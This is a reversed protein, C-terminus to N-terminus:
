STAAGFDLREIFKIFTKVKSPLYRKQPYVIYLPRRQTKWESLVPVLTGDEIQSKILLDLTYIIGGGRQAANILAMSSNFNPTGTPIHTVTKNGKSFIWEVIKGNRPAFFGMCNKDKLDSPHSPTGHQALYGPSACAIYRTNCLKRSILNSDKLDGLQLALDIGGEVLRTPGPDLLVVIKIDPNEESFQKLAPVIFLHGLGAPVEVVLRGRPTAHSESIMEETEEIDALISQCRAYYAAGEYTPRVSRTTRNLLQVGLHKELNQIAETISANALGLKQAARSFGGSDVVAVFARM